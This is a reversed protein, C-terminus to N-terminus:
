PRESPGSLVLPWSYEMTIAAINAPGNGYWKELRALASDLSTAPAALTFPLRIQRASPSVVAAASDVYVRLGRRGTVVTARETWVLPNARYSRSLAEITLALAIEDVGNEIRVAVDEHRWWVLSNFVIQAYMAKSFGFARSDHSPNWSTVGVRKAVADALARGGIREVLAISLPLAASIGTTSIVRGDMVYRSNRVWTTRPYKKELDDLAHWHSTARHGDLVGAAAVTWAGECISVITAGRAAQQAVWAVVARNERDKRIRLM